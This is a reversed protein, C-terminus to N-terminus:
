KTLKKVSFQVQDVHPLSHSDNRRGVVFETLIFPDSAKAGLLDFNTFLELKKLVNPPDKELEEFFIWNKQFDYDTGSEEIYIYKKKFKFMFLIFNM